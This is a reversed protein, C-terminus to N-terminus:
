SIEMLVDGLEREVRLAGGRAPNWFYTLYCYDRANSLVDESFVAASVGADYRASKVFLGNQGQRQLYRGVGQTFAYDGQDILGPYDAEKGVLDILVGSCLVMLVRRDAAIEVDEDAYSDEVFRRWHYVTEFITTEMERAGYWVGYLQGDSFRTAQWNAPIFPYAIAVGYEFPRTILPAHSPIHGVMEAAVAIQSDLNGDGLDDYCDISVRSTKINRYLDGRFDTITTLLEPFM